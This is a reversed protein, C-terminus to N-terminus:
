TEVAMDSFHNGLQLLELGLLQCLRLLFLTYINALTIKFMEKQDSLLVFSRPQALGRTPVVVLFRASKKHNDDSCESDHKRSTVLLLSINFSLICCLFSFLETKLHHSTNQTLRKAGFSM